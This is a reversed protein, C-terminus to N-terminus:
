LGKCFRFARLGVVGDANFGTLEGELTFCTIFWDDIYLETMGSKVLLRIRGDQFPM